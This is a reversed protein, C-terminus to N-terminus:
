FWKVMMSGLQEAVDKAAPLYVDKLSQTSFPSPLGRLTMDGSRIAKNGEEVVDSWISVNVGALYAVPNKSTKLGSATMDALSRAYDGGDMKVGNSRGTVIDRFDSGMELFRDVRTIGGAVTNATKFAPNDIIQKVIGGKSAAAGGLGKISQLFPSSKYRMLPGMKLMPRWANTYRGMTSAGRTLTGLGIVPAAIKAWTEASDTAAQWVTSISPGAGAALGGSGSCLEGGSLSAERQAAGSAALIRHSETLFASTRVLGPKLTQQWQQRFQEADAGNWPSGVLRANVERSLVELRAAANRMQRALADLEDADAGWMDPM